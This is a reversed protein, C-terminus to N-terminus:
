HGKMNPKICPTMFTRPQTSNRRFTERAMARAHDELAQIDDPKAVTTGSALARQYALRFLGSQMALIAGAPEQNVVTSLPDSTLPNM